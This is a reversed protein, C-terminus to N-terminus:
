APDSSAAIPRTKLARRRAGDGDGAHGELRADSADGMLGDACCRTVFYIRQRIHPAGVGAACLNAAAVAYHDDELDSLVVDLWALGDPSAVQEGYVAPPACERILRQWTPWLHREDEHGGRKGAASFPQCPCSGTWVPRADPWGALRLAHSWVGIGAFFHCQTYRRLEDPEIDVISREDVIGPAIHGAAILNRLWQAAYKDIENYFNM